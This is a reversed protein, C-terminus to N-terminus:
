NHLSFRLFLPRHDSGIDALVEGAGFSIQESAWARDLPLRFFPPFSSPWTGQPPLLEPNPILGTASRMLGDRYGAPSTNFDGTVLVPLNFRPYHDRVVHGLAVIQENGMEWSAMTRPSPVHETSFIIAGIPLAVVISRHLSFLSLMRTGPQAEAVPLPQIPYRSLIVQPWEQRHRPLVRHPYDLLIREDTRIREIVAESAEVVSVLDPQRAEMIARLGDWASLSGRINCHLVSAILVASSKASTQGTASLLPATSIFVTVLAGAFALWQRTRAAALAIGILPIGFFYSVNAIVDFAVHLSAFSRSIVILGLLVVVAAILLMGGAFRRGRRGPGQAATDDWQILPTQLPM